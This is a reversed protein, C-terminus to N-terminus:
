YQREKQAAGRGWQQKPDFVTFFPLGLARRLEVVAFIVYISALVIEWLLLARALGVEDLGCSMLMQSLWWPLLSWNAALVLPWPLFLLPFEPYPMKGLTTVILQAIIHTFAIASTMLVVVPQKSLIRSPSLGYLLSSAFFAVFVALATVASRKSPLQPHATYYAAVLRMSEVSSQLAGSAFCVFLLSRAEFLWHPLLGPLPSVVLPTTFIHPGFFGAAVFMGIIGWQAETPGIAGFRM